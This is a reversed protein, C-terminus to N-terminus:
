RRCIKRKWGIIIVAPPRSAIRCNVAFLNWARCDMCFFCRKPFSHDRQIRKDGAHVLDGICAVRMSRAQMIRQPLTIEDEPLQRGMPLPPRGPEERPVRRM